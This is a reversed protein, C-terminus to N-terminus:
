TLPRSGVVVTAGPEPATVLRAVLGAGTVAAVTREAVDAGTEVVLCGGPALWAPAAAAVRRHVASGDPGGDLAVLPEHERAERPLQRFAGTPVYPANVTLVDVRGRLSPPLPAFLDGVYVSGGAAALNRRACRAAVPSLDSAHVELGPVAAAVAAAVAGCGCCLDLLCAGPRTLRVAVDVLGATRRRPVFVGPEVSLRLGCFEVWGVLHELPEGAVRRAVLTALEDPSAAHAVLLAAEDEAFVCGAARLQDTV